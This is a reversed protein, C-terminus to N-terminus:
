SYAIGGLDDLAKKYFMLKDLEDEARISLNEPIERELNQYEKANREIRRLEAEGQEIRNNLYRPSQLQAQTSVRLLREAEEEFHQAKSAEEFGREYRAVIKDRWAFRGPQTLFAIDGRLDNFQKQLEKQRLKAFHAYDGYREAKAEAKEAKVQMREAFSVKEGVEGKGEFGLSKAIEQPKWTNAQGKSIWAGRQRSFLFYSKIDRKIDDPLALYDAKEFHLEMKGTYKDVVYYGTM